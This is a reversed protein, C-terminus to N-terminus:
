VGSPSWTDVQVGCTIHPPTYIGWFMAFIYVQRAGHVASFVQLFPLVQLVCCGIPISFWKKCSHNHFPWFDKQVIQQVSWNVWCQHGSSRWCQLPKQVWPTGQCSSRAYQSTSTGIGLHMPIHSDTVEFATGHSENHLAFHLHSYLGSWHVYKGEEEKSTLIVQICKKSLFM